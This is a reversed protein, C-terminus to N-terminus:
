SSSQKSVFDIWTSLAQGFVAPLTSNIVASPIWGKMDSDLVSEVKTRGEKSPDKTFKYMWCANYGRVYKEASPIQPHDVSCGYVHIQNETVETRGVDVFERASIVGKGVPNTRAYFLVTNEDIEQLLKIEKLDQDWEPRRSGPMMTITNKCLELPADVTISIRLMNGATDKSPKMDITFQDCSKSTAKWGESIFSKEGQAKADRVIKDYDM